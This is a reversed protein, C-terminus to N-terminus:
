CILSSKRSRRQPYTSTWLNTKGQGRRKVQLFEKTELEKIYTNASERTVGMNRALREQGPFCYGNQWAYKLLMTYALKAGPSIKSSELVYTRYKLSGHTSLVDAGKLIINREVTHLAKGIHDM